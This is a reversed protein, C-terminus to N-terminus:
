LKDRCSPCYRGRLTLESQSVYCQCMCCRATPCGQDRLQEGALARAAWVSVSEGSKDAMKQVWAKLEPSVRVYIATRQKTM